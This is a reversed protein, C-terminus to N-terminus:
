CRIPSSASRSSTPGSPDARASSINPRPTSPREWSKTALQAQTTRSARSGAGLRFRHDEGDRDQRDHHQRAAPGPAADGPPPIGAARQRDARCNRAGNGPGPKPNDIMWQTLTQGDVFETVVYLYNQRRSQIRRSEPRPRQQRAPGGVGGDHIAQLYAPDGRLDISPIKVAVMASTRPTSRWTSTAGAAATSRGSSGTATWCREPSRCLLAHCSRRRGSSRAARPILCRM